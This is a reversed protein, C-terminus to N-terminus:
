NGENLENESLADGVAVGRKGLFDVVNEITVPLSKTQCQWIVIVDWGLKKLEDIVREDRAKNAEIKPIWYEPRSKPLKGKACDHGHWFCGHVFIAKRKGPFVMDPRGPLDKAHLRYRYGLKHLARRVLMEPGTDKQGVSQMIRRRQGPTRTEM